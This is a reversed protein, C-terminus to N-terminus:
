FKLWVTLPQSQKWGALLIAPTSNYQALWFRIFFRLLTVGFARTPVVRGRGTHQRESFLADFNNRYKRYEESRASRALPFRPFISRTEGHGTHAYIHIHTHTHAHTDSYRFSTEYFEVYGSCQQGGHKRAENDGLRPRPRAPCFLEWLLM